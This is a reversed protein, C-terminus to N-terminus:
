AFRASRKRLMAWVLFGFVVLYVIASVTTFVLMLDAIQRARPGAPNLAAHNSACGQLIAAVSILALPTPRNIDM